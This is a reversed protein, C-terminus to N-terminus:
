KKIIEVEFDIYELFYVLINTSSYTDYNSKRFFMSINRQPTKKYKQISNEITKKYHKLKYLKNVIKNNM